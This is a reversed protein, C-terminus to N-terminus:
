GDYKMHVHCLYPLLMGPLPEGRRLRAAFDAHLQGCLREMPQRGADEAKVIARIETEAPADEPHRLLLSICCGCEGTLRVPVPSEPVPVPADLLLWGNQPWVKWGIKNMRRMFEAVTEEAAAFPLDTSLLADPADPRRLAPRRRVPLGELCENVCARLTRMM